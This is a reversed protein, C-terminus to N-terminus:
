VRFMILAFMLLSIRVESTVAALYACIDQKNRLEDVKIENPKHNRLYYKVIDEERSTVIIRIFSPLELFEKALLQLILKMGDNPLEDLADILIVVPLKNSSAQNVRKLPESVLKDFIIAIDNISLLKDIQIGEHLGPLV